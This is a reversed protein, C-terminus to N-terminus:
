RISLNALVEMARDYRQWVKCHEKHNPIHAIQCAKSCYMYRECGTCIYLEAREKMQNCGMCKGVKPTTSKVQAYLEDLCNCPTRIVFYKVLSRYCGNLIDFDRLMQTADRDDLNGAPVPSSPVYSDIMMLAAACSRTMGASTDPNQSEPGLMGLLYSVGTSIFNKKIIERNNKNNLAQPFKNYAESLADATLTVSAGPTNLISTNDIIIDFFITIFNMITNNTKILGHYCLSTNPLSQLSTDGSGIRNTVNSATNNAAAAKARAKRAQGKMKKRSKSPM